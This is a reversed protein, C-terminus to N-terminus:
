GTILGDDTVGARYDKAAFGAHKSPKISAGAKLRDPLVALVWLWPKDKRARLAESALGAFQEPTAGAQLLADVRPDSLNVATMDVGAAKLAIGVAGRATVVLGEGTGAPESARASLASASEKEREEGKGERGEGKGQVVNRADDRQEDRPGHREVDREVDRQSEAARRKAERAETAAKTRARQAAKAAWAENAKEAVTPHYLRGDLCKVFGRLAEERVKKWGAGAGSYRALLRDDDPLSAAPVQHWSVCWLLVAAKFEDGTALAALDSDRLRLVDLPMYGFDRLDVEAPVLPAPRTSSTM